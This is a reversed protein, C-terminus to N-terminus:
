SARKAPNLSRLFELVFAELEAEQKFGRECISPWCTEELVAPHIYSKRCVAPTNGLRRSVEKVIAPLKIPPETGALLRVTEVTAMWTRFDKATFDAGTIEKLYANVDASDIEAPEGQEDVYQFLSEGPLEQMKRVLAALRRDRLTIEHFKKSKGLFHFRLLEAGAEVHENHLTTLGFSGNERAYRRNGVRILSRELLRVVAAVIRRQSLGHRRLDNEVADRITPLAQGFEVMHSFKNAERHERFQPHYIAQKRGKADRGTAQIHGRANPCIWVETWAPPIM